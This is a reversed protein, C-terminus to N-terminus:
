HNPQTTVVQAQHNWPHAPDPKSRFAQTDHTVTCCWQCWLSTKTCYKAIHGKTGCNNCTRNTHNEWAQRYNRNYNNSFSRNQNTYTSQYQHERHNTYQCRNPIHCDPHSTATTELTPSQNAIEVLRTNIQKDTEPITKEFTVMNGNNQHNQCSTALTPTIFSNTNGDQGKNVVLLPNTTPGPWNDPMANMMFAPSTPRPQRRHDLCDTVMTATIASPATPPISQDTQTTVMDIEALPPDPGSPFAIAMINDAERQAAEAIKDADTPSTILQNVPNTTPTPYTKIKAQERYTDCNPRPNKRNEGFQRSGVIHRDTRM